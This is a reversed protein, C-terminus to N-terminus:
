FEWTAMLSGTYGQRVGTYGQLSFDVTLPIAASPTWSLGLEGIGTDGKLSPADLAHGLSTARAVGDFEHEWAAGICSSVYENVSWSLRGGLRLRHSNVADFHLADGNPLRAQTGDERTWLYKGTLDLSLADSISWLYGLGAHAGYYPASTSYEARRGRDDLLEDNRYTNNLAGARGSAEAHIHGPGCDTFDMRVLLGGGLYRSKGDGQVSAVTSFSNYTSAAASGFEFFTGATFRGLATQAGLALGSLLSLGSVDIHSGTHYRSWGGALTGFGTLGWDGGARAAQVAAETGRGAVLDSGQLTVLMAGLHGEALAKTQPNLGKNAAPAQTPQRPIWLVLNGDVVDVLLAADEDSERMITTSLQDATFGRVNGLLILREGEKLGLAGGGIEVTVTPTISEGYSSRTIDSSEVLALLPTTANVAGATLRFIYSTFNGVSQATLGSTRVELRNDSVYDGSANGSPGSQSVGGYLGSTYLVPAGSLIVTNNTANGPAKGGYVDGNVTGGSLIVRNGEANESLSRGGYVNKEVSGGNINVENNAAKGQAYGGYVNTKVIASGDIEVMNGEAYSEFSRGGYVNLKVMGGSILSKNIQAAGSAWGGFVNEHVEGGSIDVVNNAANGNAYAGHVSWEVTGASLHVENERADGNLSNGGNVAEAINGNSIVVKNRETNGFLSFGGSVSGSLNGGTITVLHNRATEKPGDAYGGLVSGGFDSDMFVEVKDTSSAAPIGIYYLNGEVDREVKGGRNEAQVARSLPPLVALSLAVAFPALLAVCRKLAYGPTLRRRHFITVIRSCGCGSGALAYRTPRAARTRPRCSPVAEPCAAPFTRCGPPPPIACDEHVSAAAPLELPQCPFFTFSM